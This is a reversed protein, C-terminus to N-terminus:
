LLQAAATRGRRLRAPVVQAHENVNDGHL